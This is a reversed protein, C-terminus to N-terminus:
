SVPCWWSVMRLMKGQSQQAPIYKSTHSLTRTIRQPSILDMIHHIIECSLPSSFIHIIPTIPGLYQVQLWSPASIHLFLLFNFSVKMVVAHEGGSVSKIEASINELIEIQGALTKDFFPFNFFHYFFSFSSCTAADICFSPSLERCGLFWKIPFLREIKM